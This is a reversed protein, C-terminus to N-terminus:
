AFRARFQAPDLKCTHQLSGTLVSLGPNRSFRFVRYLHSQERFTASCAIENATVQFPFAKALGSTKVEIHRPRGDAEFSRTDYSAGDGM